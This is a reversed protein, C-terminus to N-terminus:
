STRRLLSRALLGQFCQVFLFDYTTEFRPLKVSHYMSIYLQRKIKTCGSYVIAGVESMLMELGQVRERGGFGANNRVIMAHNLQPKMQICIHGLKTSSLAWHGSSSCYHSSAPWLVLTFWNGRLFLSHFYFEVSNQWIHAIYTLIRALLGITLMLLLLRRM